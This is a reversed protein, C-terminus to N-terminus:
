WLGFPNFPLGLTLVRSIQPPSQVSTLGCRIQAIRPGFRIERRPSDSSICSKRM